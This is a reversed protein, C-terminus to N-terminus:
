CQGEAWMRTIELGTLEVTGIATSVIFDAPTLLGDTKPTVVSSKTRKLSKNPLNPIYIWLLDGDRHDTTM